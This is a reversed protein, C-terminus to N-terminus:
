VALSVKQLECALRNKEPTIPRAHAVLKEPSGM